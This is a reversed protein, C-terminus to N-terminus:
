VALRPPHYEAFSSMWGAAVRRARLALAAVPSRPATERRVLIARAPYSRRGLGLVAHHREM